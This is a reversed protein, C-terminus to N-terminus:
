SVPNCYFCSVQLHDLLTVSTYYTDQSYMEALKMEMGVSSGLFKREIVLDPSTTPVEADMEHELWNQM